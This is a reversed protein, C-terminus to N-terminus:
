EPRVRFLPTEYEVPDANEACVETITGAVGAPIANMMKMVEIICVVTDPEVRTGVEVFPPAGPAEARYFTGVIPASITLLDATAGVDGPAEVAETSVAPDGRRVYLSLGDTEVRLEEVDSEDILRLIERIDDETLPM